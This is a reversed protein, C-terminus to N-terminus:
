HVQPSPGSRSQDAAQRNIPGLGSELSPRAGANPLSLGRAKVRVEIQGGRVRTEFCPQPVTAPGDMVEGSALAFRSGHWPCVVGDDELTGESLPGGLHSCSEALAYIQGGRRALVVPVGGTEVRRLGGEPLETEGLVPVFDPPLSEEDPAHTVGVRYRYSLEGGLHASIGAAAFGLAALGRGAGRAGRRRLLFSAAYVVTIGLNMLGHAVGVRRAEGGAKDDVHQYDTLGAAAAGLAGVLGFGIAADAGPAFDDRGKITDLTDLVLATTWSGIPVTVLAPHLPHAFWTGHLFNRIKPGVPGGAAYAGQVAQQVAGALPELWSQRAVRDTVGLWAM